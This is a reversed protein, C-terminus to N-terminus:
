ISSLLLDRYRLVDEAEKENIKIKKLCANRNKYLDIHFIDMWYVNSSNSGVVKLIHTEELVM